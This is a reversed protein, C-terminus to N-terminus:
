RGPEDFFDLKDVPMVLSTVINSAHSIVRKIYRYALVEASPNRGRIALLNYISSDCFDELHDAQELFSRAVAEDQESYVERARALLESTRDKLEILRGREEEDLLGASRVALDYMNKAYDGIREADKVLSMVVLLEPFTLAGHVSGHVVLQRRIEQETANIRDDTAFLDRSIVQPDTGGLLANASADFAHRGDDLMRGLKQHVHELKQGEATLRKFWKFM